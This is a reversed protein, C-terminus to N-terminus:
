AKWDDEAEALLYMYEHCLAVNFAAPLLSGDLKLAQNLHKLARDFDQLSTDTEQPARDLRAKDQAARARELYAAGLDSYLGANKPDSELARELERIAKDLEGNALYYQGLAHHSDSNAKTAVSEQSLTKARDLSIEDPGSQAGLTARRPPWKFGSMRAETPSERFSDQLAVRAKDALSQYLFLQWAIVAAAAVAVFATAARLAPTLGELVVLRRVREAWTRWVSRDDGSPWGD